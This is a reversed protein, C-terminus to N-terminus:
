TSAHRWAPYASGPQAVFSLQDNVAVVGDIARVESIVADAVVKTPVLGAVTVVGADVSVDVTNPDLALREVIIKDRIEAGLEADSRLFPMLLDIRTVVGILVGDSAVVPLAALGAQEAVSAAHVVTDTAKVTPPSPWMVEGASSGKLQRRHKRSFQRVHHRGPENTCVRALLDAESILGVLRQEADVVPIVAAHNAVITRALQKFSTSPEACIAPTTMADSVYHVTM